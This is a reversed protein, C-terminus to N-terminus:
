VRASCHRYSDAAGNQQRTKERAAFRDLM